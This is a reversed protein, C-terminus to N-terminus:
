GGIRSTATLCASLPMRLAATAAGERDRLDEEADQEGAQQQWGQQYRGPLCGIQLAVYFGFLGLPQSEEGLKRDMVKCRPAVRVAQTLCIM